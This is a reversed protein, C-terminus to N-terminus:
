DTSTAGTEMKKTRKMSQMSSRRLLKTYCVNYSTIRIEIANDGPALSSRTLDVEGGGFISTIKGGKFNDTILQREAGSFINVYDIYDAKSSESFDM